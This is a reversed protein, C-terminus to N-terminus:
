INTDGLHTLVWIGGSAMLLIIIGLVVFFYKM